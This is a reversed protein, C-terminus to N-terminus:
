LANINSGNQVAEVPKEIHKKEKKCARPHAFPIRGICQKAHAHWRPKKQNLEFILSQFISGLPPMFRQPFCVETIIKM